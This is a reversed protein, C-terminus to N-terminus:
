LKIVRYCCEDSHNTYSVYVPFDEETKGSIKNLIFKDFNNEPNEEDVEKILDWKEGVRM